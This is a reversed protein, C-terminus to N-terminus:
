QRCTFTLQHQKDRIELQLKELDVQRTQTVAQQTPVSHDLKVCAGTPATFRLTNDSYLAVVGDANGASKFTNSAIVSASNDLPCMVGDNFEGCWNSRDVCSAGGFHLAGPFYLRLLNQSSNHIYCRRSMSVWFISLPVLMLNSMCVFFSVM